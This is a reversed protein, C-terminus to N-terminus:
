YLLYGFRLSSGFPVPDLEYHPADPFAAESFFEDLAYEIPLPHQTAFFEDLEYLPADPFAAQVFFEDLMFEEAKTSMIMKYAEEVLIDLPQKGVPAQFLAVLKTKRGGQKRILKKARLLTKKMMMKLTRTFKM